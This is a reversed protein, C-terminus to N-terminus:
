SFKKLIINLSIYTRRQSVLNIEVNKSNADLSNELLEKVACSVSTIVQSTKLLKVTNKDLATIKM